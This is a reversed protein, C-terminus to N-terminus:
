IYPEYQVCKWIHYLNIMFYSNKHSANRSSPIFTIVFFLLKFGTHFSRFRINFEEREGKLNIQHARWFHKIFIFIFIYTSLELYLALKLHLFYWSHSVSKFIYINIYWLAIEWTNWQGNASFLTSSQRIFVSSTKHIGSGYARCLNVYLHSTLHCRHHEWYRIINGHRQMSFSSPKLPRTPKWMDREQFYLKLNSNVPDRCMWRNKRVWRMLKQRKLNIRMSKETM